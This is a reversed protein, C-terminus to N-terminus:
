IKKWHKFNLLVRKSYYKRTSTADSQNRTFFLPFLYIGDRPIIITM